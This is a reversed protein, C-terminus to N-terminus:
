VNNRTRWVFPRAVSVCPRAVLENQPETRPVHARRGTSACWLAPARAAHMPACVPWTNHRAAHEAHLPMRASSAAGAAASTSRMTQEGDVAVRLPGSIRSARRGDDHPTGSAAMAPSHAAHRPRRLSCVQRRRVGKPSRAGGSGPSRASPRARTHPSAGGCCPSCAGGLGAGAPPCGSSWSSSPSITCSASSASGPSQNPPSSSAKQIATQTHYTPLNDARTSM